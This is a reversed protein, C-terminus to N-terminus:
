TANGNIVPSGILSILPKANGNFGSQRTLDPIRKRECGNIHSDAAARQQLTLRGHRLVEGLVIGSPRLSAAPLLRDALQEPAIRLAHCPAGHLIHRPFQPQAAGDEIPQYPAIAGGAADLWTQGAEVARPEYRATVPTTQAASRWQTSHTMGVELRGPRSSPGRRPAYEAVSLRALGVRTPVTRAIRAIHM